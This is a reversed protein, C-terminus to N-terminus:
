LAVKFSYLLSPINYGYDIDQILNYSVDFFVGNSIPILYGIGVRLGTTSEDDKDIIDGELILSGRLYFNNYFYYSAGIDLSLDFEETGINDIEIELDADISVHPNLFYNGKPIIELAYCGNCDLDSNITDDTYAGWGGILTTEVPMHSLLPVTIAILFITKLYKM